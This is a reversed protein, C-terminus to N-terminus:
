QTRAARRRRCRACALAAPGDNLALLARADDSKFTTQEGRDEFAVARGFGERAYGLAAKPDTRLTIQALRGLAFTAGRSGQPGASEYADLADKAAAIAAPM